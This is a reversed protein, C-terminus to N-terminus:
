PSKSENNTRSSKIFDKLESLLGGKELRKLLFRELPPFTTEASHPKNIKLNGSVFNITLHYDDKVLETITPIEAIPLGVNIANRFFITNFSEALVAAIGAHKLGGAAQERSSGSGFNIGAVLIVSQKKEMKIDQAKKYFTKDLGSMVFKSYYNPDPNDLYQSPMILDTNINDGFKVVIGEIYDLSSSNLVTM